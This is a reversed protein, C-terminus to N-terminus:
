KESNVVSILFKNEEELRSCMEQYTIRNKVEKDYANWLDMYHTAWLKDSEKWRRPDIIKYALPPKFLRQGTFVDVPPASDDVKHPQYGFGNRGDYM